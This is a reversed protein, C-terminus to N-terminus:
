QLILGFHLGNSECSDSVWQKMEETDKSLRKTLKHTYANVRSMVDNANHEVITQFEETYQVSKDRAEIMHANLKDGLLQLDRGVREATDQAFPRLKTEMDTKYINLEAM